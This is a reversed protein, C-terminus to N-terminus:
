VYRSSAWYATICQGGVATIGIRRRHGATTRGFEGIKGGDFQHRVERITAAGHEHRTDCRERHGDHRESLESPSRVIIPLQVGEAYMTHGPDYGQDPLNPEINKGAGHEYAVKTSEAFKSETRLSSQTREHLRVITHPPANRDNIARQDRQM